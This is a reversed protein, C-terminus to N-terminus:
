EGKTCIDLSPLASHSHWPKSQPIYCGITVKTIFVCLRHDALPVALSPFACCGLSRSRICTFRRTDTVSHSTHQRSFLPIPECCTPSSSEPKHKLKSSKILVEVTCARRFYFWSSQVNLRGRAVQPSTKFSLQFSISFLSKFWSYSLKGKQFFFFLFFNFITRLVEWVEMRERWTAAAGM